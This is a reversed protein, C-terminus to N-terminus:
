FWHLKNKCFSFSLLKSFKKESKISRTMLNTLPIVKVNKNDKYLYRINKYYQLKCILYIKKYISIQNILGNCIIHDGLGLHHHIVLSNKM